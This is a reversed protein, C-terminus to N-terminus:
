GLICLLLYHVVICFQLRPPIHCLQVQAGWSVQVCVTCLEPMPPLVVLASLWPPHLTESTPLCCPPQVGATFAPLLLCYSTLRAAAAGIFALLLLLQAAPMLWLARQSGQYLM